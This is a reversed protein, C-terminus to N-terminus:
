AYCRKIKTFTVYIVNALIHSLIPILLNGTILYSISLFIGWVSKTFINIIYYIIHNLGFCISSFLIYIIIPVQYIELLYKYCGRFIIEEAIPIFFTILILISNKEPITIKLVTGYKIKFIINESVICLLTCLILIFFGTLRIKKIISYYFDPYLFFFFVVIFFVSSLFVRGFSEKEITGCNYLCCKAWPFSITIILCINLFLIPSVTM